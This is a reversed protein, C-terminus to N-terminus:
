LSSFDMNHGFFHKKLGFRLAKYSILITARLPETSPRTINLSKFNEKRATKAKCKDFILYNHCFIVDVRPSNQDTINQM